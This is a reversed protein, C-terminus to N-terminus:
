VKILLYGRGRDSNSTRMEEDLGSFNSDLIETANRLLEEKM